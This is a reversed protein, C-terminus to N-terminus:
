QRYICLKSYGPSPNEKPGYYVGAQNYCGLRHFNEDSLTQLELWWKTMNLISGLNCCSSNYLSSGVHHTLYIATYTFEWTPDIVVSGSEDCHTRIHVIPPIDHPTNIPDYAIITM